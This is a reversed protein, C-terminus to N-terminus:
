SAPDDLLEDRILKIAVPRDLVRDHGRLVQAMGGAGLPEGREYRGGLLAM